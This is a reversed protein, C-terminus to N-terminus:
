MGDSQDVSGSKILGPCTLCSGSMCSHPLDLDNDMAAELITQDEPCPFSYDQGNWKLKIAYGDANEGSSPPTVDHGQNTPAPSPVSAVTPLVVDGKTQLFADIRARAEDM